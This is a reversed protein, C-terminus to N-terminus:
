IHILSLNLINQANKATRNFSNFSIIESELRSVQVLSGVDDKASNIRKGTSLREIAQDIRKQTISQALSLKLDLNNSVALAM